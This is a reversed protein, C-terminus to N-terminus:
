EGGSRAGSRGSSEQAKIKFYETKAQIFVPLDEDADKWLALLNEYYKLAGATDGSLAKAQAMGLNAMAAVPTNLAVGPHNVIKQFEAAAAAPNKRALFARGRFYAPCLNPMRQYSLNGLETGASAELATIATAPDGSRIALAARISPLLNTQLVTDNPYSKALEDALAQARPLQHALALSLAVLASAYRSPGRQLVGDALRVANQEQGLLASNYAMRAAYILATDERKQRRAVEAARMDLVLSKRLQGHFAATEADLWLLADETDPKGEALRVQREMEAADGKRFALLYLAYALYASERGRSIAENAQARAEELRDLSIYNGVLNSRPVAIEPALEVARLAEALALDYRGLAMLGVSANNHPVFDRPFDQEWETAVTGSSALDGEVFSHFQMAISFKERENTRERLQYAAAIQDAGLRWDGANVYATGLVAHAMAFQPDTAIAQQFFAIAEANQGRNLLERGQTYARLAELSPTTAEALPKDFRQLSPLSEGLRRRLGGAATTLAKLVDEKREAQVQEVALTNGTSCQIAELGLVYQSGLSAISGEIEAAAGTRQCVQRALARTLRVDPKEGMMQLTRAIEQAPVTRLFPSQEIQVFLGQKLTGDFVTDGTSNAFEALLISDKETLKPKGHLYFFAGALLGGLVVAAGTALWLLWSRSAAPKALSLATGSELVWRLQKLADRMERAHQYREARDKALAKRIIRQLEAPTGPNLDAPAVPEGHLIADYVAATTSGSFATKGTVMEYLVAGFSFLDTR